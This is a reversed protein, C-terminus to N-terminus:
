YAMKAPSISNTFNLKWGRVHLNQKTFTVTWNM